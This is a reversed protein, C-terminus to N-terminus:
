TEHRLLISFVQKAELSVRDEHGRRIEAAAHRIKQTGLSHWAKRIACHDELLVMEFSRQAAYGMFRLDDELLTIEKASGGLAMALYVRVAKAGYLELLKEASNETQHSGRVHLYPVAVISSPVPVSMLQSVAVTLLAHKITKHGCVLVEIQLGKQALIFPMLMWCLDVDLFFISSGIQACMGTDRTRSILFKRGCLQRALGSWELQAYNPFCSMSHLEQLIQMLLCNTKKLYATTNCLRCYITGDQIEYTKRRFDNQVLNLPEPLFEVKGCSCCYTEREEITLWGEQLGHASFASLHDAWEQQEDHWTMFSAETIRSVLHTFADADAISWGRAGKTNLAIVSSLGTLSGLIHTAFASLCYGLVPTQRPSLPLTAIVRKM